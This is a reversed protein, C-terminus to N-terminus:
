LLDLTSLIEKFNEKAPCVPTALASPEPREDFAQFLSMKAVAFEEVTSLERSAAATLESRDIRVIVPQFDRRTASVDFRYESDQQSVFFYEYVYGSQASYSKLRRTAGPGRQRWM